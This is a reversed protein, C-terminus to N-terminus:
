AAAVLRGAVSLRVDVGSAPRSRAHASETSHLGGDIHVIAKGEHALARAEEDSLGAPHALRQAIQRYRELNSLNDASSILAVYWPLGFSTRGVQVLELRDSAAALQQFYGISEDYSALHFDDGVAFGLM